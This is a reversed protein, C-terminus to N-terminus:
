IPPPGAMTGSDDGVAFGQEAMARKIYDQMQKRQAPTPPAISKDTGMIALMAAKEAAAYARQAAGERRGALGTDKVGKHTKTSGKSDITVVNDEDDTGLKTPKNYFAAVADGQNRAIDVREGELGTKVGELQARYGELALRAQDNSLTRAKVAADLNAKFEELTLQNKQAKVGISRFKNEIATQADRAASEQERFTTDEARERRRQNEMEVTKRETKDQALQNVGAEGGAGIGALASQGPKAQMMALGARLVPMIWAPTKDGEMLTPQKAAVNSRAAQPTTMGAAATAEAELDSMTGMKPARFTGPDSLSPAQPISRQPAQEQTPTAGIFAPEQISFNSLTRPPEITPAESGAGPAARTGEDRMKAIEAEINAQTPQVGRTRLANAARKIMDTISWSSGGAGIPTQPVGRVDEGAAYGVRGGDAFAKALGYLGLGTTALGAAQSIPSAQPTFNTTETQRSSAAAPAGSLISSLYKTQDRDYDRQALFDNYALNLGAQDQTQQRTGITDMATADAAGLSQQAKGLEGFVAASRNQNQSDNNIATIAKDYASSLGQTQIDDLRQGLNRGAEAEVIAQRSGGFAGAKQASYNRGQRAIDDGRIAERKAIDVVSQTYPNMYDSLNRDPLAMGATGAMSAAQNLNPQYNGVNARTMGFSALTDPTLEATRQGGYPQYPQGAVQDSRTMIRNFAERFLPDATQTVTTPPAATPEPTECLFSM